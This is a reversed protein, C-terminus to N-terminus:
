GPSEPRRVVILTELRATVISYRLRRRRAFTRTADMLPAVVKWCEWAPALVVIDNPQVRPKDRGPHRSAGPHTPSFFYRKQHSQRTLPNVIGSITSCM